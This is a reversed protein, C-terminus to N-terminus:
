FGFRKRARDIASGYDGRKASTIAKEIEDDDSSLRHLLQLVTDGTVDIANSAGCHECYFSLAMTDRPDPTMRAVTDRSEPTLKLSSMQNCKFCRFNLEAM